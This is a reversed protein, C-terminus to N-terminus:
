RPTILSEFNTGPSHPIEHQRSGCDPPLEAAYEFFFFLAIIYQQVFYKTNSYLLVQFYEMYQLRAHYAPRVLESCAGAGRECRGRIVLPKREWFDEAFDELLFPYLLEQVLAASKEAPEPYVLRMKKTSITPSNSRECLQPQEDGSSSAICRVLVAALASSFIVVITKGRLRRITGM